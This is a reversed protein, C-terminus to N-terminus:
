NLHRELPCEPLKPMEWASATNALRETGRAKRANCCLASVLTSSATTWIAKCTRCRHAAVMNWQIMLSLLLTDFLVHLLTFSVLDPLLSLRQLTPFTLESDLDM